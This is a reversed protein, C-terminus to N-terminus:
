QLQHLIHTHESRATRELSYGYEALLKDTLAKLKAIESFTYPRNPDLLPM